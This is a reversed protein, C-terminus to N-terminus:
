LKSLQTNKVFIYKIISLFFLAYRDNKDNSEGIYSSTAM